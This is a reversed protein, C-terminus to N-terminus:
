FNWWDAAIMPTHETPHKVMNHATADLRADIFNEHWQGMWVGEELMDGVIYREGDEPHDTCAAQYGQITRRHPVMALSPIVQATM